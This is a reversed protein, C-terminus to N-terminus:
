RTLLYHRDVFLTEKERLRDEDEDLGAFLGEKDNTVESLLSATKPSPQM